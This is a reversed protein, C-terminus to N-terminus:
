KKIDASVKISSKLILVRLLVRRVFNLNMNIFYLADQHISVVRIGDLKADRIFHYLLRAIISDVKAIINHPLYNAIAFDRVSKWTNCIDITKIKKHTVSEMNERANYLIENTLIVKKSYYLSLFTVYMDEACLHEPFRVSQFLEANYLGATMMPMIKNSLYVEILKFDSNEVELEKGSFPHLMINEGNIKSQRFATRVIDVGGIKIKNYLFELYQPEVWDDSDIFTIYTGCACDLGANRASSQGCNNQHKVRVRSDIELYKDCILGSKDVSGDDILILEFNDFTQKLISQICEDLYKEVNYVPVIVSIDINVSVRERIM